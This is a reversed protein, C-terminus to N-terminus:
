VQSRIKQALEIARQRTQNINGSPQFVVIRRIEQCLMEVDPSSTGLGEEMRQLYLGVKRKFDGYEVENLNRTCSLFQEVLQNKNLNMERGGFPLARRVDLDDIRWQQNEPM